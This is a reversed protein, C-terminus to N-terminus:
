LSIVSIRVHVLAHIAIQKMFVETDLLDKYLRRYSSFYISHKKIISAMKFVVFLEKWYPIVNQRLMYIFLFNHLKKCEYKFM